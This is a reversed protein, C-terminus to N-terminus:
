VIPIRLLSGGWWTDDLDMHFAVVRIDNDTPKSKSEM